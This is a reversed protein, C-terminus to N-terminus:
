LLFVWDQLGRNKTKNNPIFVISIEAITKDDSNESGIKNVM